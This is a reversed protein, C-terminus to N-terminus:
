LHNWPLFIALTATIGAKRSGRPTSAPSISSTNYIFPGILCAHSAALL